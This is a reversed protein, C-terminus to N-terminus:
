SSRSIIEPMELLTDIARDVPIKVGETSSLSACLNADALPIPSRRKLLNLANGRGTALDRIVFPSFAGVSQLVTFRAMPNLAGLLKPGVIQPAIREPDIENLIRETCRILFPLVPDGKRIVLVANHLNVRPHLRGNEGEQIWTEEGVAFSDPIDVSFNNPSFLLVDADLWVIRDYTSLMEAAKHLRALDALVPLRNNLKGRLFSVSDFFEDSYFAYDYGSKESWSRVTEVCRGIWGNLVDPRHSQFVLTQEPLRM